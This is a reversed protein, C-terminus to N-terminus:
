RRSRDLLQNECGLGAAGVSDCKACIPTGSDSPSDICDCGPCAGLCATRTARKPWQTKQGTLIRGAEAKQRQRRDTM